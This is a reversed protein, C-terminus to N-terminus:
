TAGPVEGECFTEGTPSTMGAPALTVGADAFRVPLVSIGFRGEMRGRLAGFTSRSETAGGLAPNSTSGVVAVRM